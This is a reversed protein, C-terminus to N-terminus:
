RMAELWKNVAKAKKVNGLVYLVNHNYVKFPLTMFCLICASQWLTIGLHSSPFPYSNIKLRGCSHTEQAKVRSLLRFRTNRALSRVVTPM